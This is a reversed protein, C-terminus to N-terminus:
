HQGVQSQQQEGGSCLDLTRGTDATTLASPNSSKLSNLADTCFQTGTGQFALLEDCSVAKVTELRESIQKFRPCSMAQPESAVNESVSVVSYKDSNVTTTIQRATGMTLSKDTDPIWKLQIDRCSVQINQPAIQNHFSSPNSCAMKLDEFRITQQAVQKQQVQQQQKPSQAGQAAQGQGAQNAFASASVLVTAFIM